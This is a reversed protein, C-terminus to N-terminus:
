ISEIRVTEQLEAQRIEHDRLASRQSAVRSTMTEREVLLQRAKREQNHNQQCISQNEIELRTILEM